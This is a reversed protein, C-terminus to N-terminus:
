EGAISINKLKVAFPGEYSDDKYREKSFIMSKQVDFISGNISGGTFKKVVTEGDKEEFFYALRIEGGFQGTYSKGQSM